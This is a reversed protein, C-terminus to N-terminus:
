SKWRDGDGVLETVALCLGFGRGKRSGIRLSHLLNRRCGATLPRSRYVSARTVASGPQSSRLVVTREAASLTYGHM